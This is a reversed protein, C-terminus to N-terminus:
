NKLVVETICVCVWNFLILGLIDFFLHEHYARSIFDPFQPGAFDEAFFIMRIVTQLNLNM